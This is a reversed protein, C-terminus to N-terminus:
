SGLRENVLRALKGRAKADDFGNPKRAAQSPMYARCELARGMAECDKAFRDLAAELDALKTAEVTDSALTTMVAVSHMTVDQGRSDKFKTVGVIPSATLIFKAM